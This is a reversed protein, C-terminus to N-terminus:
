GYRFRGMPLLQGTTRNWGARIDRSQPLLASDSRWRSHPHRHLNLISNRSRQLRGYLGAFSL